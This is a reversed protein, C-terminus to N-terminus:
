LPWCLWCRGQVGAMGGPHGVGARAAECFGWRHVWVQLVEGLEMGVTCGVVEWCLGGGIWSMAEDATPCIRRQTKQKRGRRWPARKRGKRSSTGGTGGGAPGVRIWKRGGRFSIGVQGEFSLKTDGGRTRRWHKVAGSCIRGDYCM